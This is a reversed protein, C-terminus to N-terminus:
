SSSENFNKNLESLENIFDFWDDDNFKFKPDFPNRDKINNQHGEIKHDMVIIEYTLDEFRELEANVTDDLVNFYELLVKYQEKYEGHSIEPNKTLKLKMENLAHMNLHDMKKTKLVLMRLENLSDWMSNLSRNLIEKSYDDPNDTANIYELLPKTYKIEDVINSVHLDVKYDLYNSYQNSRIFFFVTLICLVLIGSVM